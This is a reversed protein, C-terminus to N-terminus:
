NEHYPHHRRQALVHDGLKATGRVRGNILAGITGIDREFSFGPQHLTEKLTKAEKISAVLNSAKTVVLARRQRAVRRSDRNQRQCDGGGGEEQLRNQTIMHPFIADYLQFKITFLILKSDSYGNPPSPNM